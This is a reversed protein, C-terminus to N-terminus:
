SNVLIRAAILKARSSTKMQLTTFCRGRTVAVRGGVLDLRAARVEHPLELEHARLDDEGHPVERRLGEEVRLEPDALQAALHVEVPPAARRSTGGRRAGACGWRSAGWRPLHGAQGDVERDRRRGPNIGVLVAPGRERLVGLLGHEARHEEVLVRDQAGPLVDVVRHEVALPVPADEARDEGERLAALDGLRQREGLLQRAAPLELRAAALLVDAVEDVRHGRRGVDLVV